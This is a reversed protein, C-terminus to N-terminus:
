INFKHQSNIARMATSMGTEMDFGKISDQFVNWDFDEDGDLNVDTDMNVDGDVDGGAPFKFDSGGAGWPDSWLWPPPHPGATTNAAKNPPVGAQSFVNSDRQGQDTPLSGVPPFRQYNQITGSAVLEDRIKNYTPDGDVPFAVPLLDTPDFLNSTMINEVMSMGGTTMEQDIARNEPASLPRATGSEQFQSNPKVLDTWRMLAMSTNVCTPLMGFRAPPVYVRESTRLREAAEPDTRLRAAEAERHKKTKLFLKRLPIWAASNGSIRALEPGRSFTATLCTWAREVIPTWPRRCIDVMLYAVAHWQTYTQFLWRWQKTRPETHLILNYEVIEMSSVFLRDQIEQSVETGAPPFLVPQHIILSLKALILRAVTAAVWYMPNDTTTGYKFYKRNVREHTEVLMKERMELTLAADRPCAPAISSTATHMRRALVCIEYRILSFTIDTHTDRAKPMVKTEPTIDADNINLPLETDFLKGIITLDTGQDEASRLDLICIAWWLRRRMEIEYPSLDPFHSGDKHIGISHALRIALGTLTWSFRTDDHRRVLVLFLVLAQLVVMDPSTLFNAKALAQELAFRYQMLLSSKEANCTSKVESADMSTIAAYYISFMLAETAPTLSDMNARMDRILKNMTPIHLIKVLPDVNEQFVQWLFPIQSVLPHLPRLDVSSSSYGLVFCHHGALDGPEGEADASLSHPSQDDGSMDSDEASLRSTDERLNDLEDNLKSWFASSVYRTKGKENMVLRGFDKGVLDSGAQRGLRGPGLVDPMPATAVSGGRGSKLNRQELRADPRSDGMGGYIFHGLNSQGPSSPHPTAEPSDGAGSGTVSHKDLEIQGSLEEVIGELKRLRRMLEAERETSGQKPPANPDRPRPRRPARGPAPFVCASHARRCNSCPMQKDCRVKRRRCTVCSRPNLQGSPIADPSITIHGGAYTQPHRGAGLSGRAPATQIRAHTSDPTNRLAAGGGDSTTAAPTTAHDPPGPFSVPAAPQVSHSVSPTSAAPSGASESPPPFSMM